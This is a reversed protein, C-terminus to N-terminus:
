TMFGGTEGHVDKIIRAWFIDLNNVFRGCWKLLLAKDITDLSGIGLGINQLRFRPGSSGICSKIM